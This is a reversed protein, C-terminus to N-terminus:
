ESNARTRVVVSPRGTEDLTFYIRGIASKRLKNMELEAFRGSTRTLLFYAIAISPNEVCVIRRFEQRKEMSAFSYKLIKLKQDIYSVRYVLYTSKFYCHLLISEGTNCNDDEYGPICHCQNPSTCIGSPCKECVPM